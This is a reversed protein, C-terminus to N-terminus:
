VLFRALRSYNVQLGEYPCSTVMKTATIQDLPGQAKASFTHNITSGVRVRFGVEVLRMQSDERLLLASIIRPLIRSIPAALM